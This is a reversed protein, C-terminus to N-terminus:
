KYKRDLSFRELISTRAVLCVGSHRPRTTVGFSVLDNRAVTTIATTVTGFLQPRNDWFRAVLLGRETRSLIFGVVADNRIRPVFSEHLFGAALKCPITGHPLSSPRRASVAGCRQEHTVHYM